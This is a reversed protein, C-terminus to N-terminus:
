KYLNAHNDIDIFLAINNNQMKYVARLDGSINISRCGLYKGHLAHNNLVYNYSDSSFISTQEKFKTQINEPLKKIKKLFSKKFYFIM